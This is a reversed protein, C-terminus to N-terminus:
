ETIRHNQAAAEEEGAGVGQSRDRRTGKTANLRPLADKGTGQSPRLQHWHAGRARGRVSGTVLLGKLWSQELIRAKNGEGGLM